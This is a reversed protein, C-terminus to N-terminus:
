NTNLAESEGVPVRVAATTALGAFTGRQGAGAWSVSWRVTATVTFAAGSQTASSNRYTFGCTPSAGRPDANATYSTGPGSCTVTHGDGLSWTVAGPTATATVTVGPVTASASQAGWSGSGLWLWTPLNVLQQGVPSLEIVPPPLRLEQDAQEALQAPSLVANPKGNAIWVPPYFIGGGAMGVHLGSCSSVYWAGKSSSSGAPPLMAGAPPVYPTLRFACSVVTPSGSGNSKAASAQKTGDSPHSTSGAALGCGPSPSQDCEVSGWGGPGSGGSVGGAAFSPAAGVVVVTISAAMVLALIRLRM